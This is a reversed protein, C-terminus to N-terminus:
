VAEVWGASRVSCTARRLHELAEVVNLEVVDRTDRHCLVAVFPAVTRSFNVRARRKPQALPQPELHVRDADPQVAHRAQTQQMTAPTYHSARRHPYALLELHARAADPHVAHRRKWKAQQM